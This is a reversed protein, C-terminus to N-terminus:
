HWEATEALDAGLQEIDGSRDSASLGTDRLDMSLGKSGFPLSRDGYGGGGGSGAGGGSAGWTGGDDMSASVSVEADYINTSPGGSTPRQRSEAAEMSNGLSDGSLLGLRRLEEKEKEIDAMSKRLMPGGLPALTKPGKALPDDKSSSLSSSLTGITPLPALPALPALKPGGLPKLPELKASKPANESIPSLMGGANSTSLSARGPEDRGGGYDASFSLGGSNGADLGALENSVGFSRDGAMLDADLATRGKSGAGPRDRGSNDEAGGGAKSGGKFGLAAAYDDDDGDDNDQAASAPEEELAEEEVVEEEDEVPEEEFGEDSYATSEEAAPEAAAAPAPAPKSAPGSASPLPALPALPAKSLPALPELRPLPAAPLPSRTPAPPSSAAPAPAPAATSTTTTTTTSSSNGRGGTNPSVPAGGGPKFAKVLTLLLPEDVGGPKIGLKAAAAQRTSTPANSGLEPQFVQKTFVFNCTDLLDLVLQVVVAGDADALLATRAPVTTKSTLGAGSSGSEYDDIALFVQSRLQAKLQSIIGQKELTQTVAAKIADM